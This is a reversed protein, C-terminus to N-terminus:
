LVVSLSAAYFVRDTAGKKEHTFYTDRERERERDIVAVQRTNALFHAQTLRKSAVVNLHPKYTVSVGRGAPGVDITPGWETFATIGVRLQDGLFRMPSFLGNHRFIM